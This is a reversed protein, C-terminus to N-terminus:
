HAVTGAARQRAIIQLNGGATNLKQSLERIKDGTGEFSHIPLAARATLDALKQFSAGMAGPDNRQIHGNLLDLEAVVLRVAANDSGSLLEHWHSVQQQGTAPDQVFGNNVTAYLAQVSSEIESIFNM